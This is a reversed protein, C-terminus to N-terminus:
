RPLHEDRSRGYRSRAGISLCSVANGYFPLVPNEQCAGKLVTPLDRQSFAMLILTEKVETARGYMTGELFCLMRCYQLRQLM